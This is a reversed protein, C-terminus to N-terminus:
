NPRERVCITLREYQPQDFTEGARFDGFPRPQCGRRNADIKMSAHRQKARLQLLSFSQRPAVRTDRPRNPLAPDPSRAGRSTAPVTVVDRGAALAAPADARVSEASAM